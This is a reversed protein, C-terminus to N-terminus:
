SNLSYHHKASKGCTTEPPPSIPRTAAPPPHNIPRTTRPEATLPSWVAPKLKFFDEAANGMEQDDITHTPKVQPGPTIPSLSPSPLSDALLGSTAPKPLPPASPKSGDKRGPKEGKKGKRANPTTPRETTTTANAVTPNTAKRKKKPTEPNECALPPVMPKTQEADRKTGAIVKSPGVTSPANDEAVPIIANRLVNSFAETAAEVRKDNGMLHVIQEMMTTLGSLLIRIAKQRDNLVSLDEHNDVLDDHIAKRSNDLITKAIFKSNPSPPNTITPHILEAENEQSSPIVAVDPEVPRADPSQPRSRDAPPTSSPRHIAHTPVTGMYISASSEVFRPTEPQTQSQFMSSPATPSQTLSESM